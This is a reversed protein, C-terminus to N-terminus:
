FFQLFIVFKLNDNIYRGMQNTDEGPKIIISMVTGIASGLINMGIIFALTIVSTIGQEKPNIKAIVVFIPHSTSIM